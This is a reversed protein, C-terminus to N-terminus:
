LSKLFGDLLRSVQEMGQQLYRDIEAHVAMEGKGAARNVVVACCAYSLELERALGAEPMGTMGVLDCGDRSLRNIEAATELRPGQTVALTGSSLCRLKLDAAFQILRQRLAESYPRTFDIHTLPDEDGDFFTQPRGWTYDVLQDPIALLGPEADTSIGGVANIALVDDVQAQRIAWINARYNVKHPPVNGDMGHRPVFLIEHGQQTWRLMPGSPQGYPTTTAAVTEAESSIDLETFGTGAIIAVRGM